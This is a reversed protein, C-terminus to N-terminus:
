HFDHNELGSPFDKRAKVPRDHISKASQDFTNWIMGISELREIQERDLTGRQYARRVGRVWWGLHLGNADVYNTPIKLDGHERYYALAAQWTRDRQEAEGDWIMGISELRSVQEGTLKKQKYKKRMRQIWLGLRTGDSTTYKPAVRLNRCEQYYRKAAECYEEWQRDAIDWIVGISELREVYEKELVGNKYDRRMRQLWRGLKLGGTTEYQAPIDLDGYEWCYEAAAQYQREWRMREIDWVMGIAELRQISTEDLHGSKYDKRAVQIWLGLTTGDPTVYRTPVELNGFEQYYKQAAQFKREWQFKDVDWVMCIRDLAAIREPTLYRGKGRRKQQIKLTTLWKGLKVGDPTIYADPVCLHGFEHAYAEAAAFYEPWRDKERVTWLMGIEDLMAIREEGLTGRQLGKRVARQTLIWSGLAYGDTTYYTGPVNLNGHVEYYEKAREYMDEWTYTLTDDLREFLQRCDRVEDIIQFRQRLEQRERESSGTQLVAEEFEQELAGISRLNEINNVIDFIVPMKASGASLARGIQQKYIVPSVTPRFLIVGDVDAVHIGENLMDITFLLKLHNSEDERFATFAARTTPDPSYARYIHPDADLQSFWGPALKIMRNMHAVNSCFVIYKGHHDPMHRVFIKDLGDADELSRRLTKLLEEARNRQTPNHLKEVRNEYKELDQQFSYVSLIYKPPKLIGRVIAEGLTIESAIHGDFLEKAMDRQNDLFRINTASLGLLPVSPNANLLAQIGTRWQKAGCRHFEDLIIIDPRLEEIEDISLVILKAYTLFTINEPVTGCDAALNDLQTKFIYESPSIWCINKEPYDECFKFGIFSKGTGTPHIVAAKGTRELMALAAHYAKENHAYLSISM